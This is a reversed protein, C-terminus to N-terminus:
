FSILMVHWCDGNAISAKMYREGRDRQWVQVVGCWREVVVKM